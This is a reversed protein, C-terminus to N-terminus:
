KILYDFKLTLKSVFKFNINDNVLQKLTQTNMSSNISPKLIPDTQSISLLELSKGNFSSMTSLAIKKSKELLRKRLLIETSENNKFKVSSISVNIRKSDCYEIFNKLGIDSTTIYTYSTRLNYYNTNEFLFDPSIYVDKMNKITLNLTSLLKKTSDEAIKRRAKNELTPNMQKLISSDLIMSYPDIFYDVQWYATDISTIISDSLVVEVHKNTQTSANKTIFAFLAIILIKKM